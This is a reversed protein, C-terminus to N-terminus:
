YHGKKELDRSIIIRQIENTGEFIKNVRSDRYFREFPMEKMFGMGGHIQIAMDIIQNGYETCIWKTIAAERSARMKNDMMWATRYVISEMMYIKSAMDALMFQIAQHEIIPKGFTIRQKAYQISLDLMEKAGGVCAAGLSVRGVDLVQMAIKFGAGVQGLVNTDPVEADEFFIEPSHMANLGMKEDIKGIRVGKTKKLEVAFATIGGFARLSKDNVAFTVAIDATDANTIWVKQGNLIWRDGKKEATCQLNQADSGANPESLAFCGILNGACMDPLWRKKQEESGGLYIGMAGLGQHGGIFGAFSNCGHSLEEMVLCYGIEGLGAGGYEEPFAVGYLGLEKAREKLRPTIEGTRDHVAALPKVEENVFQRVMSRLMEHEEAFKFDM